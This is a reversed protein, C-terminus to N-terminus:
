RTVRVRRTVVTTRQASDTATVTVVYSGPRRYTHAATAGTARTGDGFQWIITTASIDRFSASFRLKAGIRGSSPARLSVLAPAAADRTALYVSGSYGDATLGTWVALADGADDLAAVTRSGRQGTAITVPASWVSAGAPRTRAKLGGSGRAYVLLFGGKASAVVEGGGYGPESLSVPREWAASGIPLCSGELDPDTGWVAAVTGQDDVALEPPGAQGDEFSVNAPSGWAPAGSRRVAVKTISNGHDTTNWGVAATGDEGLAAGLGYIVRSALTVPVGWAGRSGQVAGVSYPGNNAPDAGYWAALTSGGGNGALRASMTFAKTRAIANVAAWAGGAPRFRTELRDEYADADYRIWAATANGAADVVVWPGKTAGRQSLAVPRGWRGDQASRTATWVVSDIRPSASAWVAVSNGASDLAVAPEVLEATGPDLTEPPSWRSATAARYRALIARSLVDQWVLVADGRADLAVTPAWTRGSGLEAAPLWVPSAPGSGAATATAVLAVAILALVRM